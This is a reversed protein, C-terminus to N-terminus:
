SASSRFCHLVFFFNLIFRSYLLRDNNILMQALLQQGYCDTWHYITEFRLRHSLLKVNETWISVWALKDFVTDLSVYRLKAIILLFNLKNHEDPLLFVLVAVFIYYVYIYNIRTLVRESTCFIYKFQILLVNKNKVRLIFLICNDFEALSSPM